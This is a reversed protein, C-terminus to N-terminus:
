FSPLDLGVLNAAWIGMDEMEQSTYNTHDPPWAQSGPACVPDHNHCIEITRDDVTSPLAGGVYGTFAVGSVAKTWIGDANAVGAGAPTQDAQWLTDDDNGVKAPDAVLVVAGLISSSLLPSSQKALDDLVLHVVLAGQSYGALVMEEQPCAQHLEAMTELLNSVGSEISALYIPAFVLYYVSDAPYNLPIQDIQIGPDISDLQTQFHSEVEAIKTGFGPPDGSGRAGIFAIQGCTGGTVPDYSTNSPDPAPAPVAVPTEGVWPYVEVWEGEISTGTGIPSPGSPDGWNVSSADVFGDGLVGVTSNLISGHISASSASDVSLATSAYSLTAVDGDFQGGSTVYIGGWDGAAPSGSGTAGGVSNDNVSTFTIPSTSTGVADLTGEVTIQGSGYLGAKVVSGAPLTLTVGAPVDLDPDVYSCRYENAVVNVNGCNRWHWIRGRGSRHQQECRQPQDRRRLDRVALNPASGSKWTDTASNNEIVPPNSATSDQVAITGWSLHAFTSNTITLSAPGGYTGSEYGWEAYSVNVYSLDVSGQVYTGNVIQYPTTIEGWDGAAPSGSGTAGGVSNDNVSTFTIPSTSTGVADLTGEVTIQGSGYLGAKVVSGAPLTLTVGAPVDLDPDVYFAISTQSWTSTAVTGGIGFVAGAQATNNSVDNLNIGDGFIEYALNPASGSKWTDTASNNEIVPPNSATSDQVAIAGWSLHAFTSNTITLSAPGGYTGSEYGWEAYSVNVYSLDVSGQVYTGNVIQYPTTIEGWDGAAPSGSGTAGGVSNDNVSTFTIPSTSTGVADLTGEVTIQGSGYLGAKVVSGAPLTLTVGAPVDLDPDVYFAISTQSWTSTAVTGGIGFVAGAQATNNSVDNLNIGDGFIEYALNPASGSKWTDTASNNEIVPPNSATSDQVAIAGWSLHAFTSNTITLSAPGGYTGSEYGWEAYSVNVYSLDVSGQVYTGNVIQYPTTIEGWDGAAPSGSGTAGGVSNDNVSTFTIPSTSTGVADLTGEVTIQGSGYLGAKVVSGAPLTLTVGAPVDLDPDVYFAISTQSWTSTAVTGGIGFVAGAQATNNSVDNLNIGDGFIEYALNPASGSKWTDTASNNEIVPPNSATSDQVAIAGWSLHAFTSNTITLSAPGGYTGSEYGWEAYSVNVYSLDVSGQVYTGNVIQYPTTIEGWDGAAPSGSGTAGGVSNDNVSTFTIPSTSTGVADLTGEVDLGDGSGFKFVAGPDVTLTIGAPVDQTCNVVYTGPSAVTNTTLTTCPVFASSAPVVTISVGTSTTSSGLSDTAVSSLTYTGSPVGTSNWTAVYGYITPAATAIVSKTLTGGTLEFQVKAITAGSAATASADLGVNTGSVSAGTAPVVVATTPAAVNDVTISVGTSTTSSGLSDTAVSSLTYTGSPVGTSNWTAVYGYITPAATAIVSKTLTGGTLEFQVKAITAGSAATASADLGVNTGSVSAGTAPVVVATTPAAVNDVTISVGTSTTSSGLSDTAVSSLTYTGSPVGTSNWTAVYGYITPAATAIVSKTLTGGTLEFQVKAITAGSAATASADLGVNTGSVSAGTAPVVVATTPAAVNDVTISVGTSTTSSGLSDTAVSSLTYTGSPVGTSNWTAVYGYITPAATAIVSKTLTGGTLEFQVKAITAGSAATASADLGVNTGSVSAGTAPVVVATTPAAVNDVTISVGTSTTSSGLSDTAVSSLTYTGSPVGTSNWTAVYGYITPAATAIVSKTLTGGTLEFQVKAITAGSAATASADLGVNTGSVSAGTAPVVVATTPAAVNDVTISVGTSTTSSGLSDTAVSSLTYTGSPVGTSNWTAVYGYITPAATAIVSKTLTGGTLEFQVKAITAGSAATASADLGVNTGSVSAGTAPVVVATTPAAVNDVTISVGTSTTSSGLSDTAVSSLTYTGSPVGTSNWTAVYGYITPAATAIVSKTLTGGTLEFQVKAITAGSAATASADLGVNTGSVSAGTAPVVVATTPLSAAEATESVASLGVLCAGAVIVAAM